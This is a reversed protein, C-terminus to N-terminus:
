IKHYEIVFMVFYVVLALVFFVFLDYSLIIYFVSNLHIKTFWSVIICVAIIVSIVSKVTRGNIRVGIQFKKIGWPATVKATFFAAAVDASIILFWIYKIYGNLDIPLDTRNKILLLVTVTTFCLSLFLGFLSYKLINKVM